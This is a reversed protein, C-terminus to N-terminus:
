HNGAIDEDGKEEVKVWPKGCTNCSPMPYFTIRVTLNGVDVIRVSNTASASSCDCDKRYEIREKMDKGEQRYRVRRTLTWKM